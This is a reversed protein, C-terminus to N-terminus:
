PTDKQPTSAIPVCVAWGYAYTYRDGDNGVYVGWGEGDYIPSSDHIRLHHADPGTGSAGGAVARTYAPCYVRILKPEFDYAIPYRLSTRTTITGLGGPGPPGSTGGQGAPGSPGAPGVWTGPPLDETSVSHDNVDRGTLSPDRLDRGHVSDDKVQAGTVLRTASASGAFVLVLAGLGLLFTSLRTTPM